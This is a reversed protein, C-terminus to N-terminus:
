FFDRELILLGGYSGQSGTYSGLHLKTGGWGVTFRYCKLITGSPSLSRHYLPGDGLAIPNVHTRRECRTEGVGSVVTLPVDM